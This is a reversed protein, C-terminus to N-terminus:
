EACAACPPAASAEHFMRTDIAAALLNNAATIAHIDGTQKARQQNPSTTHTKNNPKKPHTPSRAAASLRPYPSPSSFAHLRMRRALLPVFPPGRRSVVHLNLEKM